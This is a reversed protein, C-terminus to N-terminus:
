ATSRPASLEPTIRYRTIEVLEQATFKAAVGTSFEVVIGEEEEPLRDVSVISLPMSGGIRTFDYAPPSIAETAQVVNRLNRRNAAM